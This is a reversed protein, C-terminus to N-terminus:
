SENGWREWNKAKSRAFLEIRKGKTYLKDIIARFEEPKESHKKTKEIPVVSDVLEKVDPTGSGKVGILLFEHRVSNYHGWNHKVKDWIFSAKYKYGWANIVQIGDELLPSPVWLFLTSDDTSLNHIPLACIEDLKMTSYHDKANGSSRTNGYSWPPDAYIIRYKKDTKLEANEIRENYAEKSEDRKVENYVRNISEEGSVLKAKQEPTAKKQIHKVKSINGESIRAVNAIEKRSNVKSLITLGKKGAGKSKKLNQKARKKFLSELKLALEARTYASINRRGFQNLIIWEIVTDRSDFEIETTQYKIKHKVCIKIRNHGDIVNGNWLIVPSLCGDKKINAELQKYEEPDLPPILKQFEPDIKM